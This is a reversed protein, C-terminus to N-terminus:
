RYYNREDREHTSEVSGFTSVHLSVPTGRSWALGADLRDDVADTTCSNCNM